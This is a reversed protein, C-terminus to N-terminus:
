LPGNRWADYRRFGLFGGILGALLGTLMMLGAKSSGPAVTMGIMLAAMAGGVGSCGTLILIHMWRARRRRAAIIAPDFRAGCAPCSTPIVDTDTGLYRGCGSCNYAFVVPHEKIPQDIGAM